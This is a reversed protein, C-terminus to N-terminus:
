CWGAQKAKTLVKEIEQRVMKVFDQETSLCEDWAFQFLVSDPLGLKAANLAEALEKGLAEAEVRRKIEIDREQTPTLERVTM